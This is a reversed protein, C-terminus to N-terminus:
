EKRSNKIEGKPAAERSRFAGCLPAILGAGKIVLQLWAGGEGGQPKLKRRFAQVGSALLSTASAVSGFMRAGGSLTCRWETAANWREMLQTHNLESEAILVEKRLALASVRPLKGHM